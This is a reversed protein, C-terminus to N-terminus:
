LLLPLRVPQRFTGGAVPPVGGGPSRAAPFRALFRGLVDEALGLAYGSGPCAHAGHGFSVSAAQSRKPDFAAAAPFVEEDRNASALLVKVPAGEPLGVGALITDRAAFRVTDHQPPEYRLVERLFPRLLAPRRAIRDRWMPFRLLCVMANALLATSTRAGAALTLLTLSVAEERPLDCGALARLLSGAPPRGALLDALYGALETRTHSAAAYGGRSGDLHRLLHAVRTVVFDHDGPPVGVFETTVLLPVRAAVDAVFEVAAGEGLGDLVGPLVGAAAARFGRNGLRGALLAALLARQRAHRPGDLDLLTEGFVQRSVRFPYRVTFDAGALCARVDRHRSVCFMGIEAAWWVPQERRLRAYSPWPDREFDRGLFDLPRM